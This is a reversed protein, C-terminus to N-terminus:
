HFDNERQHRVALVSIMENPEIEFRAIYGSSGFPIIIDRLYPNFTNVKKSNYPFISLQDFIYTKITVIAEEALHFNNDDREIIFKFLREIDENAEPTLQVTYRKM